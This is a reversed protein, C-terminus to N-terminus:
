PREGDSQKTQEALARLQERLGRRGRALLSELAELGIELVACAEASTMGEYHVLTIAARQREPLTLLARGVELATQKESLLGSPRDATSQQDVNDSMDRRKRLQDICLNRAVHYIFTKPQARPTWRAAQTWLRLFTEQAVDEAESHSGLIREAFRTVRALYAEVLRRYANRDGRGIRQMLALDDPDPQPKAIVENPQVPSQRSVAGVRDAIAGACFSVDSAAASAM